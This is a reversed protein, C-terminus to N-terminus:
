SAEAPPTAQLLPWQLEEQEPLLLGLEWQEWLLLGRVRFPDDQLGFPDFGVLHGTAVLVQGSEAATQPPAGLVVALQEVFDPLLRM